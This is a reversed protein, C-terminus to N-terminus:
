TLILHMISKQTELARSSFLTLEHQKIRSINYNPIFPHKELYCICVSFNLGLLFKPGSYSVIVVVSLISMFLCLDWSCITVNKMFMLLYLWYEWEMVHLMSWQNIVWFFYIFCGCAWLLFGFLSQNRVLIKTGWVVM